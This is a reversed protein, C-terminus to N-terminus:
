LRIRNRDNDDVVSLVGKGDNLSKRGSLYDQDFIWETESHGALEHEKGMRIADVPCAEECLGCFMCRLIEIHFSKPPEGGQPTGPEDTEIHICQSPCYSACLMCSTCRLEGDDKVTLLPAGRFRDSHFYKEQPHNMPIDKRLGFATRTLSFLTSKFGILFGKFFGHSDYLEKNLIM